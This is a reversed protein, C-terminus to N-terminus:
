TKDIIVNHYSRTMNKFTHCHICFRSQPDIFVASHHDGSRKAPRQTDVGAILHHQSDLIVFQPDRRQFAADLSRLAADPPVYFGSPRQGVFENGFAALGGFM